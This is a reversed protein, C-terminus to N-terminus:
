ASVGLLRRLGAECQDRYREHTHAWDDQLWALFTGEILARMQSAAVDVDDVDFVGQEAGVAIVEAYLGNIIQRTMASIEGFSEVRAGYEILDLYLLTFDRNQQPGVFVARVVATLADAPGDAAALRERIRRATGLLAWRMTTAFLRDKAKFHYLILGKSIGAEDAIDQLSLRHGGKATIVRYASRVIEEERGGLDLERASEDLGSEVM